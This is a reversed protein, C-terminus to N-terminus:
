YFNVIAFKEPDLAPPKEMLVSVDFM